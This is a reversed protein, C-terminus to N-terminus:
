PAFHKGWYYTHWQWWGCLSKAKPNASSFCQMFFAVKNSNKNCGWLGLRELWDTLMVMGRRFYDWLIIEQPWQTAMQEPNNVWPLRCNHGKRKTSYKHHKTNMTLMKYVFGQVLFTRNENSGTTMIFSLFPCDPLTEIWYYLFSMRLVTCSMDILMTESDLVIVKFLVWIHKHICSVILVM